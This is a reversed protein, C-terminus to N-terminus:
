EADEPKVLSALAASYQGPSWRPQATELDDALELVDDHKLLIVDAGPDGFLQRMQTALHAQGVATGSYRADADQPTDRFARTM